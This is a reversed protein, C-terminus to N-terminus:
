KHIYKLAALIERVVYAAVPENFRRTKQRELIGQLHGKEM